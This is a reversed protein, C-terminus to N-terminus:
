QKMAIRIHVRQNRHTRSSGKKVTQHHSKQNGILRMQYVIQVILRGRNHNCQNRDSFVHLCAVLFFYLFRNGTQHFKGRLFCYQYVLVSLPFHRQRHNMNTIRYQYLRACTNRKVTHYRGSVTAHIFCHQGSFTKRYFLALAALYNAATYGHIAREVYLNGSHSLVRGKRLNDTKYFIRLSSFCRNCLNCVLHGAHKHRHYHCNRQYGTHEPHHKSRIKRKRKLYKSRYKYNCAGTSQTKCCRRRNNYSGSQTSRVPNQDSATFCQFQRM